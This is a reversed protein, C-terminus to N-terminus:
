RTPRLLVLRDHGSRCGIAIIEGRNNIGTAQIIEWDRTRLFDNLDFLSNARYLFGHFSEDDPTLSGGVIEGHNNINRAISFSGGLTGLMAREGNRQSFAEIRGTQPNSSVGAVQSHDNISIIDNHNNEFPGLDIVDFGLRDGTGLRKTFAQGGEVSVRM